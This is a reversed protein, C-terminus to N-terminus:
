KSLHYKVKQTRYDIVINVFIRYLVPSLDPSLVVLISGKVHLAEFYMFLLPSVCHHTASLLHCLAILEQPHHGYM